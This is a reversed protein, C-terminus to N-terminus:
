AKGLMLDKEAKKYADISKTLTAIMNQVHDLEAQQAPSLGSGSMRKWMADAAEQHGSEAAPPIHAMEHMKKEEESPEAAKPKSYNGPIRFAVPGPKSKSEPASAGGGMSKLIASDAISQRKAVSKRRVEEVQPKHVVKDEIKPLPKKVPKTAKRGPARAKAFAAAPKKAAGGAAPASSAVPVEAVKKGAVTLLKKGIYTFDDDKKAVRNDIM